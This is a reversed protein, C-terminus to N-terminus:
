RGHSARISAATPEADGQPWPKNSPYPESPVMRVAEVPKFVEVPMAGWTSAPTDPLLRPPSGDSSVLYAPPLAQRKFVCRHANGFPIMAVLEWGRQGTANLEESLSEQAFIAHLYEWKM